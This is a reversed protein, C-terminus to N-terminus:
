KKTLLPVIIAAIAAIAAIIAAYKAWMASRSAAAAELRAISNAESALRNAEKAISLTAEERADRKSAHSADATVQKSRLWAEVEHRRPSDPSGHGGQAMELLVTEPGKAELSELESKNM